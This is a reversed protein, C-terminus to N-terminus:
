DREIFVKYGTKTFSLAEEYKEITIGAKKVLAKIRKVKNAKYVEVPEKESAGITAIIEEVAETDNLIDRVKDM